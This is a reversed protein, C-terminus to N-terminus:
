DSPAPLGMRDLLAQLRLDGRLGEFWDLNRIWPLWAHNPQYDLWKFARDTDGLASYIAALGLANWASPEAELAAAIRRADEARGAVAYTRGLLWRGPPSAAVLREHADIAEDFMGKTAYALGLVVLGHPSEPAVEIAKEAERIADDPRGDMRYLEGLWATHLPTLPDLSQALRHEAIAEEMRDFLALFWAYHYHNMALSPNLENARRFAREAGEWDWEHYLKVDALAAHGEALDPDLTIARLAAARARPWADPPPAFGHGLTAYGLALGAYAHADAPNAEVAQHLYRLGAEFGDATSRNLEYMGRLYAEYVEPEVSPAAALRVAQEPTLEVRIAQAIARAIDGHLSRVDRLDRVYTDSWVSREEPFARILQARIRVSGGERTVSAEVVADVDLERAIEPLTRDSAAYRMASRRSIVRLAGVQGLEGLLADYMGAAFYEQGPDATLDEFPFVVLSDLSADTAALRPWLKSAATGAALLVGAALTVGFWRRRAAVAGPEGEPLVDFSWALVLVIPFGVVVAVIVATVTWEPLFLRPFVTDAIEVVLWAGVAYAAAARWVRRRRLETLFARLSGASWAM